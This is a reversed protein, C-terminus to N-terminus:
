KWGNEKAAKLQGILKSAESKLLREWERIYVVGPGQYRAAFAENALRRLYVVQPGTAYIWENRQNRAM